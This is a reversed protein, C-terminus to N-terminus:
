KHDCQDTPEEVMILIIAVFSIGLRVKDLNRTVKSIFILPVIMNSSNITPINTAAAIIM